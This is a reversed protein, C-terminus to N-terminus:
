TPAAPPLAETLQTFPPLHLSLNLYLLGGIYGGSKRSLLNPGDSGHM